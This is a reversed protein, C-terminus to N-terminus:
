AQIVKSKKLKIKGRCDVILKSHRAILNYDLNDHDTVIIVIDFKRLNSQNINISKMNFDYKRTKSIKKIYPDTYSVKAKKNKLLDIIKLAPSERIDDVNKKYAVGIILIKSNSINKNHQNLLDLTKSYVYSPMSDNIQGSLEIFRTHFDFERAKWTLLFPDIPICHGGLGPGPYFAQFGFPKSKAANIVEYIDINMKDLLIKLENIMGINVSRYINELLKTTEATKLSSVSVTKIKLSEYLKKAVYLCNRTHGSIVKPINSVSFNRNGPDEREPSYIIFFEQGVKFNKKKAMSVFYEDTTGPYTTSELSIAQGKKFFPKSLELSSKIYKMDPEKHSDIPTPMCYIVVDVKKIINYNYFCEFGSNNLEKIKADSFRNIYSKNKKLLNIKRKDNDIGIVKHGKSSFSFVLPLGVYGLGVICIISKRQEIRSILKQKYNIM